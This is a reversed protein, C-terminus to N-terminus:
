AGDTAETETNSEPASAAEAAKPKRPARPKKEVPTEAAAEAEAAPKEARTRPAAKPKPEEAPAAVAEVVGEAAPKEARPPAKTAGVNEIEIQSLRSRHGNHRKYGTRKKYKGIRVKEGLLHRVVRVTVTGDAPDLNAEGDGGLLLVSPQFTAGEDHALRDVLLREGAQVRYQKGGLSIIAYSM